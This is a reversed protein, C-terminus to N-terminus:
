RPAPGPILSGAGLAAPRGPLAPKPAAAAGTQATAPRSTPAAHSKESLSTLFAVNASARAQPLGATALSKAEALKGRTGLVLALNQPVQRGAGKAGNAVRLIREAAEPKGDLAYSLALNNLVVPHDPALKLARALEQQAEGHRGQAALSVGLGSHTQWDAAGQKIADQLATAAKRTHGTELALLGQERLLTASGPNAALSREILNLAETRQGDQRLIRAAALSAAADKPDAHAKSVTGIKRAAETTAVKESPTLDRVPPKPRPEPISNSPGTLALKPGNACGGLALTVALTAAGLIAPRCWVMGDGNRNMAGAM